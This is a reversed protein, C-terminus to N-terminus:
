SGTAPTSAAARRTRCLGKDRRRLVCVRGCLRAPFPLLANDADLTGACARRMDRATPTNHRHHASSNMGHRAAPTFSRCLRSALVGWCGRKPQTHHLAFPRLLRAARREYRSSSFRTSPRRASSRTPSTAQGATSKGKQASHSRSKAVSFSLATLTGIPTPRALRDARLHRQTPPTPPTDLSTPVPPTPPPPFLFRFDDEQTFFIVGCLCLVVQLEVAFFQPPRRTHAPSTRVSIVERYSRKLAAVVREAGAGRDQVVDSESAFGSDVSVKSLQGATGLLTASELSGEANGLDAAKSNISASEPADEPDRLQAMSEKPRPQGTLSDYTTSKTGYLRKKEEKTTAM